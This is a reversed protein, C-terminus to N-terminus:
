DEKLFKEKKLKAIRHTATNKFISKPFKTIFAEYLKIKTDIDKYYRDKTYVLFFQAQHNTPDEDVARQLADIGEKYKKQHNYFIALKMYEKDLPM